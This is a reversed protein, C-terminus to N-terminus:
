IATAMIQVRYDGSYLITPEGQNTVVDNTLTLVPGLKPEDVAMGDAIARRGMGVLESISMSVQTRIRGDSQVLPVVTAMFGTQITGPTLTVAGDANKSAAAVYTMERMLSIPAAVGNSTTVSSDHVLAGGKTVLINVKVSPGGTDAAAAFSMFAAFLVVFVNKM